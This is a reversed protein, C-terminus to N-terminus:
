LATKSRMIAKRNQNALLSPPNNLSPPRPLRSVVAQKTSSPLEQLPFAIIALWSYLLIHIWKSM